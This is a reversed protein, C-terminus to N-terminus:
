EMGRVINPELEDDRPAPLTWTESRGGIAVTEEPLPVPEVGPSDIPNASRVM